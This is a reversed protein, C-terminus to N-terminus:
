FAHRVRVEIAYTSDENRSLIWSLRDSEDYELLLIQDNLSSSLSRSFTLYVRDSIRKGITVRASPNVRGTSQNYPDILSPTVQFTDVGFTQEVVRGVESAVPNALLQTARTTLIDRQAENPNQLARLEADGPGQTRRVDSFLLALVDAAPLPPDSSLEPQLRDLTGVARVIVQYTQGPIRVRTQAEVDFFPEIRSPNTFDINGRTVLYRRGEFTVEGRDVEARGFLVPRDYTGRLQLDASAVLRALNNEVRLSSPVVVELDFRLPVSSTAPTPAVDLAAARGAGFDLIGGSPDIRRTWTAQKVRVVGGLTPAQVNGRLSLDADVTSRIGEPYRLHMDEGRVTVNLDGPLYGDLAVRGGFQVRGGGMTATIDDLRVGRSDFRIAGNIGDLSNPLSFHRVRGDTIVASGSFVPEYLPGDISATLTARGAGRVDRMLGQLIGLNADGNARLAIRQDGLSVSGGISLQTQDGVLQLDEVRVVQQEMTLRIPRPIRIGYDFLAMELRDISADVHLQNADKLLGGVRITGSAVATTYPSLKPVFLRVYPDLPSDHFRFTLDSDYGPELSIRGTGTLALTESNAELEGNVETGRLALTGTVLGVPEQAVAFNNMRFRVDYRPNAFTSSGGATFDILGAPQVQPYAFAAVREAPIRRGDANFSYTGDWGVYAAGTVVGTAKALNISDVRVGRGDFRLSATAKQFPEAYAVGDDITMAGFGLPTEYNGTLHFEGSLRGSVPWDDLEFAHRLSDLDRNSVRVRANIEEGHDDRPYGLSYLGEARIESDGKRILGDTVTVYSNEVVIHASGDGWLTDWARLDEGAFRGEVRPKRFPGTMGGDFEGRGGFAVPSTRSGFDTLIGALVQDSEQWDASSVHFRLASEGGWATRGDFSVYTQETAFEGGSLDVRDPGYTYRVQAAMPLHQPLPMPLFPGWAHRSHDPDAARVADLSATMPVVGAPPTVAIHGEGRHEGFRGMPWELLNRGTARGAFRVGALRYFDTLESVDVNAYSAEFRGTPKTPEGLPAIGFSFAADGGSFRAGARSVEFFKRNWHLSGHLDPFRYDYLGAVDSRFDGTLDHGGKYLHFTGSFDGAGSLAWTEDKFFLERMRQFQLRSEVQYTMEPWNDFDLSGHATSLAGAPNMVYRPTALKSGDIAFHAKFDAWMPVYNQISVLGGHFTADGNYGRSNTINIDINPAVISWPAEHDEYSFQGRYAHLYRLTTVFRRPGPPRNSTNRRLRLFNDTDPWKEVLMAWDTMEVSTVIFEPRRQFALGWDLSISLKKAAFFPRDTPKLGEISFDDVEFRGRAVRISLGGIHIPRRLQTSGQREALARLSPGLDIRLSVFIAIALIVITSTAAIAVHRLFRLRRLRSLVSV